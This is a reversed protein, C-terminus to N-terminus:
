DNETYTVYLIYMDIFHWWVTCYNSLLKMEMSCYNLLLKSLLKYVQWNFVVTTLCYNSVTSVTSSLYNSYQITVNWWKWCFTSSLQYGLLPLLMIIIIRRPYLMENVSKRYLIASHCGISPSRKILIIKRFLIEKHWM